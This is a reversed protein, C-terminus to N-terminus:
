ALRSALQSAVRAWAESLAVRHEDSMIRSPDDLTAEISQCLEAYTELGYYACSEKLKHLTSREVDPESPADFSAVMGATEAFFEDFEARNDTIMQALATLERQERQEHQKREGTVRETVDSLILLIREPKDDRMLPAYKVDFANAASVLRKPMQDLCQRLAIAGECIAEFGRSLQAAVKHDHASLYGALMVGSPEGAAPEGFWRDIVASREGTIRGGLDAAIFGQAANDLVLRLDRNRDELERTVDELQADIRPGDDDPKRTGDLEATAAPMAVRRTFLVIVLAGLVAAAGGASLILHSIHTQLAQADALPQTSVVVAVKDARAEAAVAAAWSAVYDDGRVVTGPEAEFVPDISATTGHSTVIQDDTAIAIAQIDPSAAYADIAKNFLEPNTAALAALEQAGRLARWELGLQVQSVFPDSMELSLMVVVGTLGAVEAIMAILLL